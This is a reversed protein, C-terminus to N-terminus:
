IVKEGGASCLSGHFLDVYRLRLGNAFRIQLIEAIIHKLLAPFKHAIEFCGLPRHPFQSHVEPHKCCRNQIQRQHKHNTADVKFAVHQHERRQDHTEQHGERGKNAAEHECRLKHKDATWVVNSVSNPDSLIASTPQPRPRGPSTTDMGNPILQAQRACGEKGFMQNKSRRRTRIHTIPPPFHTLVYLCRHLIVYLSPPRHVCLLICSNHSIGLPSRKHQDSQCTSPGCPARHNDFGDAQHVCRKDHNEPTAVKDPVIGHKQIRCHQVDTLAQSQPFLDDEHDIVCEVSFRQPMQFGLQTGKHLRVGHFVASVHIRICPCGSSCIPLM